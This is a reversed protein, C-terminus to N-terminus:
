KGHGPKIKSWLMNDYVTGDHHIGANSMVNDLHYGAAQISRISARNNQDCQRTIRQVGWTNFAIDELARMSEAALGRGWAHRVFWVSASQLTVPKKNIFYVRRYGIVHDDMFIYYSAGNYVRNWRDDRIMTEYMESIHRPIYNDAGIPNFYFDSPKENEVATYVMHAHVPTVDLQRMILRPTQILKPFVFKEGAM